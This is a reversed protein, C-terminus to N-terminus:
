TDKRTLEALLQKDLEAGRFKYDLPDIEERQERLKAIVRLLAPIDYRAFLECVSTSYSQKQTEDEARKQIAALHTDLTM